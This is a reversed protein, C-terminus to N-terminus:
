KGYYKLIADWTGVSGKSKGNVIRWLTVTPIGIRIALRTIQGRGAAEKQLKEFHKEIIMSIYYLYSFIIDLPIFLDKM